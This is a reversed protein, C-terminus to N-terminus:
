HETAEEEDTLLKFEDWTLKEGQKMKERAKAVAQSKLAQGKQAYQQKEESGMEEKL